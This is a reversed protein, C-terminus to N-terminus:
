TQGAKRVDGVVVVVVESANCRIRFRCNCPSRLISSLSKLQLAFTLWTSSFLSVIGSYVHMGAFQRRARGCVFRLSNTTSSRRQTFASILDVFSFLPLVTSGERLEARLANGGGQGLKLEQSRMSRLGWFRM